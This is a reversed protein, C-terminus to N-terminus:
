LWGSRRFGIFAAGCFIAMLGITTPYGWHWSLEPMDQFNMGYIGAIMTPVAIIAAWAALRKTQVTHQESILSLNSELATSLLERLSDIMENIRMVHDYVDRFYPRSEDPILEIDFKTLRNCVEILPAIARKLAILDRRLKYIDRTTKSSCAEGFIKDELEEFDNELGEVIPFYQDVVFDMLAYLVFAPGQKLLEPLSECKARVGVHSRLSGHRVSVIYNRGIFIHTEGFELKHPTGALHATRLVVFLSDEYRELKPRQHASHADEIALDHLAFQKQVRELLEESPEFLGIWVFRDGKRLAESAQDIPVDAVRVGNAYAASNIIGTSAVPQSSVEAASM